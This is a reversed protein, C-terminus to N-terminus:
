FCIGEGQMVNNHWTGTYRDGGNWEETGDGIQKGAAVPGALLANAKLHRAPGDDAIDIALSLGIPAKKFASSSTM